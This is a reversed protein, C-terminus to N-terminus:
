FLVRCGLFENLFYMTHLPGLDSKEDKLSSCLDKKVYHRTMAPIQVQVTQDVLMIILWEVIQAETKTM